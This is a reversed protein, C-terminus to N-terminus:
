EDREGDKNGDADVEGVRYQPTVALGDVDELLRIGASKRRDM